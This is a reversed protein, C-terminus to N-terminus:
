GQTEAVRIKWMLWKGILEIAAEKSLQTRESREKVSQIIQSAIKNVLTKDEPNLKEYAAMIADNTMTCKEIEDLARKFKRHPSNAM